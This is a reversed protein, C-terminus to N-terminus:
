GATLADRLAGVSEAIARRAGDLLADMSVFGHIMGDYRSSRADVGAAALRAAYAEGEDRLPDFEATVVLAPPLGSLDAAALPSADPDEPDVGGLYADIFFRMDERTLLYGEGNEAYSPRACTLDTVPYLLLQFAIAPGGHDRARRAAVAALNGGASDGAVALRGADAGVEPAHAAVWDIVAGVDEVAAPFRHEPARRYDVSVVVAPIGLALQRCLGDHTEIDGIVWGGGHAYVVVPLTGAVEPRYLRVPIDGGPGAVARDETPLPSEPRTALVSMALFNQRAEDPTQEALPTRERAELQDLLGRVQPDIPM